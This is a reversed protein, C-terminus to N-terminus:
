GISFPAHAREDKVMEKDATWREPIFEDPKDFASDLRAITWHPAKVIVDAPIYTGAITIGSPPTLRLLGSPQPPYLRLAENICANLYPLKQMSAATHSSLMALESRIREVHVPSLALHYTLM